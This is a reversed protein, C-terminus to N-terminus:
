SGLAYAAQSDAAYVQFGIHVIAVEADATAKDTATVAITRNNKNVDIQQAQVSAIAAFAIGTMLLGIRCKMLKM